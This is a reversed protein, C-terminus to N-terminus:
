KIIEVSETLVLDGAVLPPNTGSPNLKLYWPDLSQGNFLDIKRELYQM